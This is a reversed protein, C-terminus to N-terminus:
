FVGGGGGGPERRISCRPMLDVKVSDALAASNSTPVEDNLEGGEARV